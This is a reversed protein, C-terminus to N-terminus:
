SKFIWWILVGIGLFVAALTAMEKYRQENSPPADKKKPAPEDEEEEEEEEKEEEEEEEKKPEEKKPEKKPEEKPKEDKAKAEEKPKPEEKKPEEKKAAVVPKEPEKPKAEEKKAEEKKPEEKKAEAPKEPEKPKTEEKSQEKEDTMKKEGETATPPTSPPPAYDQLVEFTQTVTEARMPTPLGEGFAGALVVTINDEGGRENALDVLRKCAAKLDGTEQVITRMEDAQVKGSLGDSCLLLIDGRRLSLRGIAVTVEPRQGMAQLIVNRHPYTAIESESIVGSELLLQVFSQDRTMQRIRGSRILYARSDGVEAIYAEPGEVFCATLTAGMGHKDPTDSAARWVEANAKAVAREIQEKRAAGHEAKQKGLTQVLAEVVLASAVEGAQEGGMGDSVAMLIGSDLVDLEVVEAFSLQRDRNLDAVVFKDENNARVKGVDTAGFIKLRVM